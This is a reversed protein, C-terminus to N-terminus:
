EMKISPPKKKLREFALHPLPCVVLEGNKSYAYVRTGDESFGGEIVPTEFNDMVLITNGDQDWVKATANSSTTIFHDGSVSFQVSNISSDDHSLTHLVQKAMYDILQIYKGSQILLLEQSPSFIARQIPRVKILSALNLLEKGQQDRIIGTGGAYVTLFIEQTHNTVM